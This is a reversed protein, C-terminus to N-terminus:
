NKGAPHQEQRGVLLTLASFALVCTRMRRFYKQWQGCLTQTVSIRRDTQRDTRRDTGDTSLQVPTRRTQQQPSPPWSIDIQVAKLAKVSYQSTSNNNRQV